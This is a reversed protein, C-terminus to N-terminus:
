GDGGLVLEVVRGRTVGAGDVEGAAVAGGRQRGVAGQGVAGAGEAGRQPRPAALRDGGGVGCRAADGAGAVGDRDSRRPGGVEGGGGVERDAGRVGGSGAGGDAERDGGLVREVVRGRGVGARGVEGAGVALRGQRGVAGQGVADAGESDGQLGGAVLGDGGGV